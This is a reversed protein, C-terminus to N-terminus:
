CHSCGHAHGCVRSFGSHGRPASGPDRAGLFPAALVRAAPTGCVPCVGPVGSEAMPRLQRFHGCSTCQYDYLPM